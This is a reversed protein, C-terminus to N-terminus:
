PAPTGPTRPACRARRTRCPRSRVSRTRSAQSLVIGGPRREVLPAGLERGLLRLRRSVAPQTRHLVRAARVFEWQRCVAVFTELAEADMRRLIRMAAWPCVLFYWDSTHGRAPALAPSTPSPSARRPATHEAGRSSCASRARGSARAGGCRCGGPRPTSRRVWRRHDFPVGV